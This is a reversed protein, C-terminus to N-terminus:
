PIFLRGVGLYNELNLIVDLLRLSCQERYEREALRAVNGITLVPLSTPTNRARVTEELSDVGKMSRNATLLIMKNAQAVQWVVRDSSNIALGIEAFMVFHIPILGFWGGNALVGALLVAYGELNHDVLVNIVNICAQSEM